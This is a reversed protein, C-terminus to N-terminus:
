DLCVALACLMDPTICRELPGLHLSFSFDSAVNFEKNLTPCPLQGPVVSVIWVTGHSQANPGSDLDVSTVLQLCDDSQRCAPKKTMESMGGRILGQMRVRANRAYNATDAVFGMEM